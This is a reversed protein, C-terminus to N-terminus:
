TWASGRAREKGADATIRANEVMEQTWEARRRYWHECAHREGAARAARSLSELLGPQRQLRNLCEAAASVDGIGVVTGMSDHMARHELFPINSGVLPLGAAMADFLMRPTDEETPMFLLLDFTAMEALFAPGYEAVGRFRILDTVGLEAARLRLATEEPGAGFLHYEIAVGLRAAAAVAGIADRLGKRSVFRGAYVARLPRGTSRTALRKELRGQDIVDRSTHMSHCFARSNKGYRSYRAHVLGEKLLALGASALARRMFWDFVMRYARSKVGGGMTVHPDMDPGVFVTPLGARVGEAHALFALPRYIDSASTHLVSAGALARRVDAIWELRQRRWFDRARCRLDFSPRVMIGDGNGISALQLSQGDVVDIPLTPALLKLGGFAPALWDRALVLDRQWSIDTFYRNGDRYVPIHIALLYM